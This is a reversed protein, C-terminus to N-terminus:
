KETYGNYADIWDKVNRYKVEPLYEDTEFNLMIGLLDFLFSLEKTIGKGMKGINNFFGIEYLTQQIFVVDCGFNVNPRKEFVKKNEMVLEYLDIIKQLQEYSYVGNDKDDGVAMSIYHRNDYLLHDLYEVISSIVYYSNIKIPEKSIPKIKASITIEPIKRNVETKLVKKLFQIIYAVQLIDNASKEDSRPERIVQNYKIEHRLFWCIGEYCTKWGRMDEDVPDKLPKLQAKETLGYKELLLNLKQKQENLLNEEM